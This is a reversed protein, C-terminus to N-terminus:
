PDLALLLAVSTICALGVTEYRRMAVSFTSNINIVHEIYNLM